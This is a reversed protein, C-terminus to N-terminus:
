RKLMLSWLAGGCNSMKSTMCVELGRNVIYIRFYMLNDLFMGLDLNSLYLLFSVQIHLNLEKIGLPRFIMFYSSIDLM